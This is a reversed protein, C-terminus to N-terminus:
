SLREYIIAMGQGGGICMTELGFTADRDQLTHLLTTTIRAGTAGYPHGLAIAGGNVNLREPDVGLQRYSPIVQAAFAENIEVYDIDSIHLQAASLARRSAEVPGLGMIEPSLASVGVSVVRALPTIHLEAARTASMVVLAAAGDNLPCANGSTVSGDPRFVPQLEALRELTTTPRPSDDSDVITGDDLTIPTIDAAFFGSSIARAALMQSRLAFEDQDRRTIGNLDAVNEATQGMSIYIDPLSNSLRPDVWAGAGGASRTSTRAKAQAFAPDHYSEIGSGVDTQTACRSVSEVGASIYASGFGARISAAAILTTQVSSGCGRNVSTGPVADLGVRVAIRRAINEGQEGSQEWAGVLVDDLLDADLEPVLSLAASVIQAALADGRLSVLSGKYARGIPSRATAVIVADEM